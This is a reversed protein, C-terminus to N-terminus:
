MRPCLCLRLPRAAKGSGIGYVSLTDGPARHPVPRHNAPAEIVAPSVKSASGWNSMPKLPSNHHGPSTRWGALVTRLLLSHRGTGCPRAFETATNRPQLPPTGAGGHSRLQDHDHLIVASVSKGYPVTLRGPRRKVRCTESTRGCLRAPHPNIACPPRVQSDRPRASAPDRGAMTVTTRRREGGCGPGTRGVM